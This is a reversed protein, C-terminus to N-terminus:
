MVMICEAVLYEFTSVEIYLFCSLESCGGDVEMFEVFLNM